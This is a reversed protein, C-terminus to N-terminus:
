QTEKQAKGNKRPKKNLIIRIEDDQINQKILYNFVFQSFSDMLGENRVKWEYIPKLVKIADLKYM